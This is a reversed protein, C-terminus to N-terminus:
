RFKSFTNFGNTFINFMIQTDKTKLKNEKIIIQNANQNQGHLKFFTLVTQICIKWDIQIKGLVMTFTTHARNSNDFIFLWFLKSIQFNKKM